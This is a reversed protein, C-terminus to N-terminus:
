ILRKLNTKKLIEVIRKVQQCEKRDAILLADEADVVIIDKLGITAILRKGPRVFTNRSGIDIHKGPFVNGHKDKKALEAAAEWSGLDMWGYDAPVVAMRKTREMVAYDISVSPIGKWILNLNRKSMGRNLLGYVRPMLRKIEELMVRAKFLFIGSNWYYRKDRAFSKARALDPKEIFSDVNYVKTRGAPRGSPCAPGKIKIYGYGTEPGNPRIGLTVIRGNQAACFAIKLVDRFKNQYKIFHDSPLVLIASDPDLRSIKACLVAVPAFTNKARPELLLNSSPIRTKGACEKVRGAYFRGSAIFINKREIFPTIKGIVEEIMPRSSCVSLFQKPKIERSLPWFRKGSGGALIIAYNM